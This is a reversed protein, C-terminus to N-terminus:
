GRFVAFNHNQRNLLEVCDVIESPSAAFFDAGALMEKNGYGYMAAISPLENAMAATIDGHTDGIVVAAAGPKLLSYVAAAKTGYDEACVFRTVFATINTHELVTKTYKEPSNSCIVIEHGAKHLRELAEAAGPFLAGCDKIVDCVIEIYRVWAADIDFGEPLIAALFEYIGRGAARVLTEEDVPPLGLDDLLAYDAKFVVPKAEFLTGDLDFILLM